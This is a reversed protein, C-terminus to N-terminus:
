IEDALHKAMTTLAETSREKGSYSVIIEVDRSGKFLMLVQQRAVMAALPGSEFAPDKPPKNVALFAGDGVGSLLQYDYIQFNSYIGQKISQGTQAEAPSEDTHISVGFSNVGHSLDVSEYNCHSAHRDDLEHEKVKAPTGLVADANAQGVLACADLPASDSRAAAPPPAQRAAPAAAAPVATEGTATKQKGSCAACVLLVLAAIMMGQRPTM